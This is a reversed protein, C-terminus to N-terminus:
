SVEKSQALALLNMFLRYAGPVGAPLERFFSIGTYVYTGKGVPAVLLSGELPGEGPDHMELVSRYSKDWTRAFYLGREQIWGDWDAETLVNPQRVVRDGPDLIHVPVTEDAVRDHTNFGPRSGASTVGGAVPPRGGVSLPFPAFGGDFFQYQQYQVLVLGGRRAYDMLRENHRVLGADIEYARSGVIIADFGSLDGGAMTSPDIIKVPLGLDWLVEPVKDAAGRIYGISALRPLALQALHVGSIAPRTFTRPHIHPYDVRVAGLRYSAGDTTEAVAAIRFQGASLDPPVPVAFGYSGTAGPDLRFQQPQVIPWGSPLELRVRGAIAARKRNVLTVTFSRPEGGVAMVTNRPALSVDLGPLVQVRRRVEGNAQDRKRFAAERLYTLSGNALSITVSGRVPAPEFPLGFVSFIGRGSLGEPVSWQYMAGSRPLQLFYPDVVSRDVGVAVTISDVEGPPVTGGGSPHPNGEVLGVRQRPWMTLDVPRHSTNWGLLTVRMTDGPTASSRDTVIDFMVGTAIRIADALHVGQDHLAPSVELEGGPAAGAGLAVRDLVTVLDGWARELTDALAELSGPLPMLRAAAVRSGYRTLVDALSDGGVPSAAVLAGLTTDVGAFLGDPGAPRGSRDEELELRVESPGMRQLRGMDQSRHQSRSRMAIQHYSQGVIPDLDGGAIRLTARQPSFRASQYLKVPRWPRLGEEAWLEPFVTSDGAVRFAEHAAWGAAQHQGHGDRPTGSFISVVVQPRFRRIIRVVDKLISDRPWQSWTDALTKSYGFDYARTFFQRAGDIRRAALLEETRILGLAEGLEPGILNQGGEGRNLALYAAEAGFRRVALALLETDEDDPHAGIVLLRENHGLPRLAEQLAVLGGTSPAELQAAIRGPGLIVGSVVLLLLSAPRAPVSVM